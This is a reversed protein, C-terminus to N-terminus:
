NDAFMSGSDEIKAPDIGVLAHENIMKSNYCINAAILPAKTPISKSRKLAKPFLKEKESFSVRVLKPMSGELSMAERKSHVWVDIVPCHWGRARAAKRNIISRGGCDSAVVNFKNGINLRSNKPIVDFDVAAIGRYLKNGDCDFRGGIEGPWYFTIVANFSKMSAEIPALMFSALTM